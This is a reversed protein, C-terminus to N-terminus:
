GKSSCASGGSTTTNDLVLMVSHTFWVFQYTVRVEVPGTISSGTVLPRCSFSYQWAVPLFSGGPLAFPHFKNGVVYGHPDQACERTRGLIHICPMLPHIVVPPDAFVTPDMALVSVGLPGTNSLSTQLSMKLEGSSDIPGWSAWSPRISLPQYRSAAAYLVVLMVAAAVLLYNRWTTRRFGATAPKTAQGARPGADEKETELAEVKTVTDGDHGDM